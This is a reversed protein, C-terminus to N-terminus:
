RRGARTAIDELTQVYRRAVVQPAFHQVKVTNAKGMRTRLAGDDLLRNIAMALDVPKRPPVFLANEEETLHDAMGRHRTTVVPLGASMAETIVTPFGEAWYTPLVFVDSQRYLEYLEQTSMQGSLTVDDAVGLLGSRQRVEADAPGRGAVVLRCPRAGRVRAFAEVLDVVGKEEILRGVFLISPVRDSPCSASQRRGYAAGYSHGNALKSSVVYPNDVVRFTGRPYFAEAYGVEESSLMLVGDCLEFLARSAGKFMLSGPGALKDSRGGHFQLVLIPPARRLAVLLPLDRGMSVWEHSTKVVVIEYKGRLVLRRIRSMDRLRSAIRSAVSDEDDHRGWGVTDVTCGEDRLAQVLVPTHKPLPGTVKPHPSLM